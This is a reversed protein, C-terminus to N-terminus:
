IYQSNFEFNTSLQINKINSIILDKIECFYPAMSTDMNEILTRTVKIEELNKLAENRLIMLILILKRAVSLTRLRLAFYIIFSIINNRMLFHSFGTLVLDVNTKHSEPTTEIPILTSPFDLFTTYVPPVYNCLSYNIMFECCNCANPNEIITENQCIFFTDNKDLGEWIDKGNKLNMLDIYYIICIKLYIILLM